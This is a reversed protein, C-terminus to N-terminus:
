HSLFLQMFVLDLWRNFKYGVERFRGVEVFGFKQHFALSAQNDASIGAIITHFRQKEALKILKHMLQKGVGKARMDETVYISHEVSYQYAAWSRFIGYSGFGVVEGEQEAVIVPMQADQKKQFWLQQEKLTHPEYDYVATTHLIAQNVIKLISPLDTPHANRIITEM